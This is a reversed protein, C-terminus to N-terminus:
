ESPSFRSIDNLIALPSSLATSREVQPVILAHNTLVQPLHSKNESASIAVTTTIIYVQIFKPRAVSGARHGITNIFFSSPWQMRLM